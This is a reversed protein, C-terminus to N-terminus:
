RRHVIRLGHETDWMSIVLEDGAVEVLHVKRIEISFFSGEAPNEPRWQAARQFDLPTAVGSVRADGGEMEESLTASHLAIRPDRNIDAVKRAGPMSGFWMEGENFFVNIGSLRPAGASDLTGLVHHAHGEFRARIKAALEPAESAFVSWNAMPKLSLLWCSVIVPHADGGNKVRSSPAFDGAERKGVDRVVTGDVLAGHADSEVSWLYTIRKARVGNILQVGCKVM